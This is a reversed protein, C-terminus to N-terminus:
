IYVTPWNRHSDTVRPRIRPGSIRSSSERHASTALIALLRKNRGQETGTLFNAALGGALTLAAAVIATLFELLVRLIALHTAVTPLLPRDTMRVVAALIALVV